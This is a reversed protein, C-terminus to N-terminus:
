SLRCRKQGETLLYAHHLIYSDKYGALKTRNEASMKFMADIEENGKKTKVKQNYLILNFFM